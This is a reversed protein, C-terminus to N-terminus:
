ITYLIVMTMHKLISIVFNSESESNQVMESEFNCTILIKLSKINLWKLISICIKLTDLISRGEHMHYSWIVHFGILSQGKIPFVEAMCKLIVVRQRSWPPIAIQMQSFAQWRSSFQFFVNLHLQIGLCKLIKM